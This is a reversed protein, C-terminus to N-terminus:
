RFLFLLDLRHRIQLKFTNAAFIQRGLFMM